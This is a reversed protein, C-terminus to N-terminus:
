GYLHTYSVAVAKGRFSLILETYSKKQLKPTLGEPLGDIVFDTGYVFDKDALVGNILRFEFTGDFTGDNAPAELIDGRSTRDRICM